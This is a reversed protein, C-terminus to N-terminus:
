LSVSYRFNHLKRNERTGLVEVYFWLDQKIKILKLIVSIHLGKKLNIISM